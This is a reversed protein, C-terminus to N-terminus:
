HRSATLREVIETMQDRCQLLMADTIAGYSFKHVMPGLLYNFVGREVRSWSRVYDAPFIRSARQMFQEHTETSSVGIFGTDM